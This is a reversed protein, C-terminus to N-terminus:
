GRPLDGLLNSLKIALARLRANQALLPLVDNTERHPSEVGEIGAAEELLGPLVNYFEHAQIRMAFGRAATGKLGHVADISDAAFRLRFNARCNNKDKCRCCALAPMGAFSAGIQDITFGRCRPAM